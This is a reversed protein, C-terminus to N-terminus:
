TVDESELQAIAGDLAERFMRAADLSIRAVGTRVGGREGARITILPGRCSIGVEAFHEDHADPNDVTKIRM